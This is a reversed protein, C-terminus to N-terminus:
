PVPRRRVGMTYTAVQEHANGRLGYAIVQYTGPPLGRSPIEVNFSNSITAPLPESTWLRKHSDTNILELRYTEYDTAGALSVVLLLSDGSPTIAAQPQETGGRRGDPTLIAAEPLVHPRLQEARTQWLMAGFVIAVTAAIAAISASARHWFQLVRRNSGAVPAVNATRDRDAAGTGNGTRGHNAASNGNGTHTDNAASGAIAASRDNATNNGNSARFANWQRDIVDNALYDSDGPHIDDPPFPTAYARALEPYAILLQQVREADEK